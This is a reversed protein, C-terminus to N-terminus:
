FEGSAGGGGSRGGEFFKDQPTQPQQADMAGPTLAAAVDALNVGHDEPKLIDRVTFGFRRKDPGSNLWRTLGLSLGILVIGLIAPDWAYRTMGLYSKNTALTVCAMVLSANLILRKRSQIGWCIGAIPIIFTLVYSPWYIWSPFSKPHFHLIRMDEMLLGMVGLIHLNVTLYIAVLLCAQITINREKKFDEIGRRDAILSASFIGCLVCLLILREASPSLSFQFPVACLAIVSILAAYLYGFRLYILCAMISFLLCTIIAISRHNLSHDGILVLLSIVFCVMGAMLLAEEIGYRYLKRAKVVYEALIFCAVSFFLVMAALTKEGAKDELMWVLLGVVAGACLLTFVFFLIRFFLNTQHVHPDTIMRVAQLQEESILGSRQWTEAQRRIYINEEQESSYINLKM